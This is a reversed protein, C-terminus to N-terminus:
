PPESGAARAQGDALVLTVFGLVGRYGGLWGDRHETAVALAEARLTPTPADRLAWRTLSGTWCWEYDDWEALTSVHGFTPEFGHQRVLAVLGPLTPFDEAAAHLAVLAAPGPTREWFADGLIVEGGPRLHRRVAALTPSLGGFAHTAGVSIVVDFEGDSFDAVDGEIWRAREPPRGPSLHLDIGVGTAAPHRTLVETLWRGSGCGLDVARGTTPVHLRGILEVMRPEDIPAAIPHDTHAIDSLEWREM